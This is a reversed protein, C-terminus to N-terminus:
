ADTVRVEEGRQEGRWAEVKDVEGFLKDMHELSIGKTEPWFLVVVILGVLNIGMLIWYADHGVNDFMVPWAQNIWLTTAQQGAQSLNVGKDRLETPFIESAYIWACPGLAGSYAMQIIYIFAVQWGAAVRNFHTATPFGDALAGIIIYSIVMTASGVILTIRPAKDTDPLLANLIIPV